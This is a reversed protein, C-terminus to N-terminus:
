DDERTAATEAPIPASALAIRMATFREIQDAMQDDTGWIHHARLVSNDPVFVIDVQGLAGDLLRHRDHLFLEWEPALLHALVM